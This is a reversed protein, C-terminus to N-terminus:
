LTHLMVAKLWFGNALKEVRDMKLIAFIRVMFSTVEDPVPECVAPTCLCPGLAYAAVMEGNTLPFEACIVGVLKHFDEIAAVSRSAAALLGVRRLAQRTAGAPAVRARATSWEDKDVPVLNSIIEALGGDARASEVFALEASTELVLDVTERVKRCIATMKEIMAPAAPAAAPAARAIYLDVQTKAAAPTAPAARAIFLDQSMRSKSLGPSWGFIQMMKIM